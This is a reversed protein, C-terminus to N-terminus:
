FIISKFLDIQPVVWKSNALQFDKCNHNQLNFLNATILRAEDFGL